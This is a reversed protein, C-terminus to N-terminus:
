SRPHQRVPKLRGWKEQTATVMPGLVLGLIVHSVKNKQVGHEKPIRSRGDGSHAVSHARLITSMQM